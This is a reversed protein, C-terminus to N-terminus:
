KRLMKESRLYALAAITTVFEEHSLAAKGREAITELQLIAARRIDPTPMGGQKKLQQSASDVYSSLSAFFDPTRANSPYQRTTRQSGLYRAYEIFADSSTSLPGYLALDFLEAVNATNKPTIRALLQNLTQELTGNVMERIEDASLTTANQGASLGGSHVAAATRNGVPTAEGDSTVPDSSASTQNERADEHPTAEIELFIYEGKREAVPWPVFVKAHGASEKGAGTEDMVIGSLVGAPIGSERLMAACLMSFDVCVGAFEKKNEARGDRRLELARFEMMGFNTSPDRKEAAHRVQSNDWDYHGRESIFEKIKEIRAMPPEDQIQVLFMRVTENLGGFPESIQESVARGEHQIFRQYDSQSVSTAAAKMAQNTPVAISYAVRQVGNSLRARAIGDPGMSADVPAERGSDDCTHVRSTIYDSNLMRPLVVTDGQKESKGSASFLAAIRKLFSKASGLASEKPHVHVVCSVMRTELSHTARPPLDLMQWGDTGYSALMHQTLFHPTKLSSTILERDSHHKPDGGVLGIKREAVDEFLSTVSPTRDRAGLIAGMFPILPAKLASISRQQQDREFAAVSLPAVSRLVAKIHAASPPTTKARFLDLFLEPSEQILGNIRNVAGDYSGVVGALATKPRQEARKARCEERYERVREATPAAVLTMKRLLEVESKTQWNKRHPLAILVAVDKDDSLSRMVISYTERGGVPEQRQVVPMKSPMCCPFDLAVNGNVFLRFGQESVTHDLWVLEGQPNALLEVDGSVKFIHPGHAIVWDDAWTKAVFAPEGGVNVLQKICVFPESVKEDSVVREGDPGSIQYVLRDSFGSCIGLFELGIGASYRWEREGHTITVVDKRDGAPSHSRTVTLLEGDVVAVEDLSVENDVFSRVEGRFLIGTIAGREDSAVFEVAPLGHTALHFEKFRLWPAAHSVILEKGHYLDFRHGSDTSVHSIAVPYGDVLKDSIRLDRANLPYSSAHCNYESGNIFLSCRGGVEALFGVKGGLNFTGKGLRVPPTRWEGVKFVFGGEDFHEWTCLQGAIIKHSGELEVPEEGDRLSIIRSGNYVLIGGPSDIVADFRFFKTSDALLKGESSFVITNVSGSDYEHRVGILSRGTQHWEFDNEQRPNTIEAIRVRHNGFGSILTLTAAGSNTASVATCILKAKERDFTVSKIREKPLTEIRGLVVVEQTKSQRSPPAAENSLLVFAGDERELRLAGPAVGRAALSAALQNALDELIGDRTLTFVIASETCSNEKLLRQQEAAALDINTRRAITALMEFAITKEGFLAAQEIETLATRAADAGGCAAQIKERWARTYQHRDFLREYREMLWKFKDDMWENQQPTPLGVQKVERLSVLPMYFGDIRDLVRMCESDTHPQFFDRAVVSQPPKLASNEFLLRLNCLDAPQKNSIECAIDYAQYRVGAFFSQHKQQVAPDALIAAIRQPSLKLDSAAQLFDAVSYGALRVLADRQSPERLKVLDRLVEAIFESSGTSVSRDPTSVVGGSGVDRHQGDTSQGAHQKSV